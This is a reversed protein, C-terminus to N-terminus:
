ACLHQHALMEMFAPARAPRLLETDSCLEQAQQVAEPLGISTRLRRQYPLATLQGVSDRM